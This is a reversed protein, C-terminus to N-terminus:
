RLRTDAELWQKTQQVRELQWLLKEEAFGAVLGTEAEFDGAVRTGMLRRQETPDVAPRARHMFCRNDWIVLDGPEWSHKYTRPAQCAFDALGDLLKESEEPTLGPIGFAHSALFISKRGTESHTKVLPRLYAKMHMVEDHRPKPNVGTRRLMSYRASHYAQLNEIRAKMAGDLKEYADRMDCFETEGGGSKPIVEAYLMAIKSSQPKYTSDTHWGENVRGAAGARGELVTGDAKANSIPTNEFELLGWRQGFAAYGQKSLSKQGPFVLFGYELFAAKIRM